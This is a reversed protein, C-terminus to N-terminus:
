AHVCAVWRNCIAITDPGKQMECSVISESLFPKRKLYSMDARYVEIEKHCPKEEKMNDCDLGARLMHYKFYNQANQDITELKSCDGSILFSIYIVIVFPRLGNKNECRTYPTTESCADRRLTCNSQNLWNNLGEFSILPSDMEAANLIPLSFM